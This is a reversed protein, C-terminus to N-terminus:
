GTPRQFFVKSVIQWRGEHRLLTLMDVYHM